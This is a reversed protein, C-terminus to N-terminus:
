PEGTVAAVTATVCAAAAVAAILRLLPRKSRPM